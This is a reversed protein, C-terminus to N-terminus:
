SNGVLMMVLDDHMYHLIHSHIVAEWSNMGAPEDGEEVHRNMLCTECLSGVLANDTFTQYHTILYTVNATSEGM